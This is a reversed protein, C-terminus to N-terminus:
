ETYADSQALLLTVIRLDSKFIGDIDANCMFHSRFDTDSNNFKM